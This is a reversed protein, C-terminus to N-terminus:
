QLFPLPMHHRDEPLCELRLRQQQHCSIIRVRSIFAAVAILGQGQLHMSSAHASSQAHPWAQAAWYSDSVIGEREGISEM